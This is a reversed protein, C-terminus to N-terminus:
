FLRGPRTIRRLRQKSHSPRCGLDFDGFSSVTGVAPVCRVGVVVTVPAAGAVVNVVAVIVVLAAPEARGVSAWAWVRSSARPGVFCQVVRQGLSEAPRVEVAIM